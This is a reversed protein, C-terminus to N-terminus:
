QLRERSPVWVVPGSQERIVQKAKAYIEEPTDGQIIALVLGNM